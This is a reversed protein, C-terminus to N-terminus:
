TSSAFTFPFDMQHWNTSYTLRNALMGCIHQFFLLNCKKSHCLIYEFILSQVYVTLNLDYSIASCVFKIKIYKLLRVISYYTLRTIEIIILIEVDNDIIIYTSLVGRQLCLPQLTINDRISTQRRLISHKQRVTMGQYMGLKYSKFSSTLPDFLTRCSIMKLHHWLPFYIHQTLILCWNIVSTKFM